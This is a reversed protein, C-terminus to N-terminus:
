VHSKISRCCSHYPNRHKYFLMKINLCFRLKLNTCYHNDRAFQLRVLLGWHFIFRLVFTKHWSYTVSIVMQLITDMENLNQYCSRLLLFLIFNWFLFWYFKFALMFNRTLWISDWGMNVHYQYILIEVGWPEESIPMDGDWIGLLWTGM